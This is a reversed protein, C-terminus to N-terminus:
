SKQTQFLQKYTKSKVKNEMAQYTQVLVNVTIILGTGILQLQVNGLPLTNALITPLIALTALFIGGYITTRTIVTTLYSATDKGPRVGVVYASQKELNEAMNEPNMQIYSYMVSFGVVLLFYVVVAVPWYINTTTMDFPATFVTQLTGVGNDAFAPIKAILGPIAMLPVVFIVPIVGAPNLRIPLYSNNSANGGSNKVYNIKVKREALTYIIVGIILFLTLIAIIGWLLTLKFFEIDLGKIGNYAANYIQSWIQNLEIPIRAVIGAMIIVSMGNGIGKETIRDALWMMIATGATIFLAIVLYELVGVISGDTFKIPLIINAGQLISFGFTIGMAQIFAFIIALYKTWNSRKNQGDVGQHKWEAVAPILDNELLQIVISATIYPSVGLAFISLRQINGGGMFNFLVDLSSGAQGLLGVLSGGDILPTVIYFGLRYVFLLMFTFLIANRTTKNKLLKM